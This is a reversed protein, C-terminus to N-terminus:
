NLKENLRLTINRFNQFKAIATQKNLINLETNGELGAPTFNSSGVISYHDFIYAKAHLFQSKNGLAGYLRVQVDDRQLYAIM